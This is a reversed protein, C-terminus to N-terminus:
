TPTPSGAFGAPSRSATSAKWGPRKQSCAFGAEMLIASLLNRVDADDEIVVATRHESM